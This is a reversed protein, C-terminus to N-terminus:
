LDQFTTGRYNWTQAVAPNLRLAESFRQWAEAPRNLVKLVIGYNYLTADSPPHHELARRFHSEAETFRGLQMLAVAMLNLAGAHKPEAHLVADFLRAADGLKGAQLATLASQFDSDITVPKSSTKSM